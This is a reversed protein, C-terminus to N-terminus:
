AFQKKESSGIINSKKESSDSFSFQGKPVLINKKVSLTSQDGRM